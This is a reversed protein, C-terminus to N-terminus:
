LAMKRGSAVAPCSAATPRQTQSPFASPGIQFRNAEHPVPVTISGAHGERVTLDLNPKEQLRRARASNPLARLSLMHPNAQSLRASLFRCQKRLTHRRWMM